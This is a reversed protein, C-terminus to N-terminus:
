RELRAYPGMMAGIFNWARTTTLLTADENRALTLIRGDPTELFFSIDAKEGVIRLTVSQGAELGSLTQSAVVRAPGDEAKELFAEYGHETKRIGCYYHYDERIFAAVGASTGAEPAAFQTAAQYSSHQQRRSIWSLNKLEALTVSRPTIKLKGGEINLWREQPTRLYMWEYGLEPDDFDDRWAFNGTTPPTATQTLPLDPRDLQWPIEKGRELIIPWGEETWEIPLMYVERGTNYFGGEYPRIALFTAWWDGNPLELFDAHGAAIIPHPREAPLDRQTLIPNREWPIWEQDLSRTRFIVQSHQISTGGEACTLYYWGDKKFIHPAEIWVPKQSLDVGGNIIIKGEGVPQNTALDIEWLWVARHGEYLSQNGPPPGNHTLWVRGDDDFFLSPDIGDIWPLEIPDSWPGAPDTSTVYFNNIGYVSTTILYFVGDHHRLTPAFIAQSATLGDTGTLQSPRDLAHGIQQWNVLDSSHFIPLGPFFAFSSTVLYYDDGVRCSSPDPYFGALIPNQFQGSPPPTDFIEDNGQYSFWDFAVPQPAAALSCATALLLSSAISQLPTM